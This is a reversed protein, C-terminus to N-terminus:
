LKITIKINSFNNVVNVADIYNNELVVCKREKGNVDTFYVDPSTIIGKAIWNAQDYFLDYSILEITNDYNLSSQRSGFDSMVQKNYIQRDINTTDRKLYWGKFEDYFGTNRNFFRIKNLKNCVDKKIFRILLIYNSGVRKYLDGTNKTVAFSDVRLVYNNGVKEYWNTNDVKSIKDSDTDANYYFYYLSYNPLISKNESIIANIVVNGSSIPTDDHYDSVNIELQYSQFGSIIKLMETIYIYVSKSGVKPYVKFSYDKNDTNNKLNIRFNLGSGAYDSEIELFIDSLVPVPDTIVNGTEDKINLITIM